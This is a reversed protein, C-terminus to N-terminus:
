KSFNFNKSVTPAVIKEIDDENELEYVVASLLESVLKKMKQFENEEYNILGVSNTIEEGEKALIKSADIFLKANLEKFNSLIIFAKGISSLTELDEINSFGCVPVIYEIDTASQFILVKL